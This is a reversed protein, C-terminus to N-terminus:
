RREVYLPIGWAVRFIPLRSLRNLLNNLRGPYLANRIEQRTLQVGGTNLREFVAERLSSAEDEDSTSTWDDVTRKVWGPIPLTERGSRGCGM